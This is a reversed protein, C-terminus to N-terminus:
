EMRGASTGLIELFHLFISSLLEYRKKRKAGSMRNIMLLVMCYFTVCEM